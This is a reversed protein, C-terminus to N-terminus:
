WGGGSFEDFGWVWPAEADNKKDMTRISSSLGVM